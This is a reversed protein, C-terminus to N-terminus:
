YLSELYTLVQSAGWSVSSNVPYMGGNPYTANFMAIVQATTLPYKTGNKAANLLSAVAAQGLLPNPPPNATSAPLTLVNLLTADQSGNTTAAVLYLTGSETKRKYANAFVTQFVTTPEYPATGVWTMLKAWDDPTDGLTDCNVASPHSTFNGSMQGSITCHYPAAGLVPKSALTALVVPAALGGQTLRRRLANPRQPPANNKMPADMLLYNIFNYAIKV